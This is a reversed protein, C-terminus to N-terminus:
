VIEWLRVKSLDVFCNLASIDIDPRMLGGIRLRLIQGVEVNVNSLYGSPLMTSKSKYSSHSRGKKSLFVSTPRM